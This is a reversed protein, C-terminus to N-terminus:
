SQSRMRGLINGNQTRVDVIIGNDVPRSIYMRGPKAFKIVQGTM